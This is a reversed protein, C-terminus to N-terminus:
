FFMEGSMRVCTEENGGGVRYRLNKGTVLCSMHILAGILTLGEEEVSCEM